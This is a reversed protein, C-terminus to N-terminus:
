KNPKIRKKYIEFYCVISIRFNIVLLFNIFFIFYKQLIFDLKEKKILKEFLRLKKISLKVNKDLTNHLYNKFFIEKKNKKAFKM